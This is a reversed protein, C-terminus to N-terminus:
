RNKKRQKNWAHGGCLKLALGITITEYTSVECKGQVEKAVGDWVDKGLNHSDNHYGWDHIGAFLLNRGGNPIFWALFFPVSAGEFIFYKPIIIVYKKNDIDIFFQYKEAMIRIPHRWFWRGKLLYKKTNNEIEDRAKEYSKFCQQKPIPYRGIEILKLRKEHKGSKPLTVTINM